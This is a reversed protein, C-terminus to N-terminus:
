KLSSNKLARRREALMTEQKKRRRKKSVMLSGPLSEPKYVKYATQRLAPARGQKHCTGMKAVLSSKHALNAPAHGRGAPGTSMVMTSASGGM